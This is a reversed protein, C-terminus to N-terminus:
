FKILDRVAAVIAKAGPRHAQWLQASPYPVPTDRANLRRPPADLLTFGEQAVRSVVEATVGGWPMAEGVALLRGTRAM